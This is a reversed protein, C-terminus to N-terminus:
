TLLHASDAFPETSKGPYVLAYNITGKLVRLLYKLLHWHRKTPKMMAVALKSVAFTIDPRTCDAIWRLEGLIQRYVATINPMYVDTEKPSPARCKETISLSQPLRQDNARATASKRCSPTAITRHLRRKLIGSEM